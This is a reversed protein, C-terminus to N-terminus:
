LRVSYRYLLIVSYESEQGLATSLSSVIYVFIGFLVDKGAM